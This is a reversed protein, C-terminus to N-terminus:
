KNQQRKHLDSPNGQLCSLLLGEGWIESHGGWHCSNPVNIQNEFEEWRYVVTAGVNLEKIM